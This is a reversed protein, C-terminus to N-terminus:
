TFYAGIETQNLSVVSQRGPLSAVVLVFCQRLHFCLLARGLAHFHRSRALNHTRLAALRLQVAGLVTRALAVETARGDGHVGDDLRHM